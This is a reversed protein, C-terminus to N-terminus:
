HVFVSGTHEIKIHCPSFQAGCLDSIATATSVANQLVLACLCFAIMTLLIKTYRDPM